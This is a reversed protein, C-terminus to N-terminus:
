SGPALRVPAALTLKLPVAAANVTSDFDRMLAVTGGPAVVLTWTTVGLPVRELLTGKRTVGYGVTWPPAYM